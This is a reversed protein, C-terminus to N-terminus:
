ASPQLRVFATGAAIDYLSRRERDFLAWALGLGLTATAILYRRWLASTAPPAGDAAVVRLRWPRMGITQGGRRWSLVFYAGVLLWSALLDLWQLLPRGEVTHGGNLWLFLGSIIFLLPIIPLMDYLLALLRWGVHAPVAVPRPSNEPVTEM